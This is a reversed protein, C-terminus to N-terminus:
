RRWQLLLLLLLHPLLLLLLRLQLLLLWLMLGHNYFVAESGRWVAQPVTASIHIASDNTMPGHAYRCIHMSKHVKLRTITHVYMSRRVHMGTRMAICVHMRM